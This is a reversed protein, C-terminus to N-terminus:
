SIHSRHSRLNIRIGKERHERTAFFEYDNVGLLPLVKVPLSRGTNTLYYLSIQQIAKIKEVRSEIGGSRILKGEFLFKHVPNIQHRVNRNPGIVHEMGGHLLARISYAL